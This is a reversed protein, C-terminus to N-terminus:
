QNVFTVTQSKVQGRKLEDMHRAGDLAVLQPNIGEKLTYHLLDYKLIEPVERFVESHFIFGGAPLFFLSHVIKLIQKKAADEIIQGPVNFHRILVSGVSETFGGSVQFERAQMTQERTIAGEKILIHCVGGKVMSSTARIIRGDRFVISGEGEHGKVRLIGSRGSFCIIQLVEGLGMDEINGALRM